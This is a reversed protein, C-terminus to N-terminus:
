AELYLQKLKNAEYGIDYGADRLMSQVDDTRLLNKSLIQDIDRAWVEPSVDIKEFFVRDSCKSNATIRDSALIPLAAAQAELMVVPLGEWRSPFLIMDMAQYLRDMDMRIGAFIVKDSIGLTEAKKVMDEKMEGRGVLLLVSAPHAKQYEHFVDMLYEHNKAEIFAGVHGFVLKDEAIGFEQRVEQRVERNYRFKELDVANNLVVFPSDGYLWDGAAQSCALLKDSMKKIVPVLIKNLGPHDCDTNHCHLYIKRAGGLRAALTEFIMMGSNGHIHVVDYKGRRVTKLLGLMFGPLNDKKYPIFLMNGMGRIIKEFQEVPPPSETFEFQLGERDMHSCYNIIVSSIGGFGYGISNVILVRKM